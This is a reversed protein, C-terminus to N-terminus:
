DKNYFFLTKYKSIFFYITHYKITILNNIILSKNVFKAITTEKSNRYECIKEVLGRVFSEVKRLFIKNPTTPPNNELIRICYPIRISVVITSRLCIGIIKSANKPPVKGAKIPITNTMIPRKKIPTFVEAYADTTRISRIVKNEIIIEDCLIDLFFLTILISVNELIIKVKTIM